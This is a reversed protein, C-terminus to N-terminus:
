ESPAPERSGTTPVAASSAQPTGGAPEHEHRAKVQKFSRLAVSLASSEAIHAAILITDMVEEWTAGNSLASDIHAKLCFDCMLATASAVSILEIMKPDLARSPGLLRDGDLAYRIFAAPKEEALTRMLFGTGGYHTKFFQMIAATTAAPDDDLLARIQDLRDTVHPTDM